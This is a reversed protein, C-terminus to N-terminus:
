GLMTRIILMYGLGFYIIVGATFSSADRCYLMTVFIASIMGVVALTFRCKNAFYPKVTLFFTLAAIALGSGVGVKKEWSVETYDREVFLIIICSVILFFAKLFSVILFTVFSRM